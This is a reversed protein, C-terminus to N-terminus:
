WEFVTGGLERAQDLRHEDVDCISVRAGMAAAVQAAVQGIFGAGVVLAREGMRLDANRCTHMAVSAMGFLAAERRDIEPPLKVLLWDEAVTTFEDHGASSYIVDGVALLKCDPGCEVVAGVNQYGWGAPLRDDPTALNVPVTASDAEEIFDFHLNYVLNPSGPDHTTERLLGPPVVFPSRPGIRRREDGVTLWGGGDRTYLLLHDFIVRPEICWDPGAPFHRAFRVFPSLRALEDM